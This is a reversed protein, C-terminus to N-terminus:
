WMDESFLISEPPHKKIIQNAAIAITLGEERDVWRGDSTLFGQDKNDTSVFPFCSHLIHHHRCPRPMTHVVDGQKSKIAACEITIM